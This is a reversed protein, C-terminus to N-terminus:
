KIATGRIDDLGAWDEDDSRRAELVTDIETSMSVVLDSNEAPQTEIEEGNPHGNGSGGTMNADSESRGVDRLVYSATQVTREGYPMKSFTSKFFSEPFADTLIRIYPVCSTLIAITQTCQGVLYWEWLALTIDSKGFNGSYGLQTATAAVDRLLGTLLIFKRNTHLRSFRIPSEVDGANFMRVTGRIHERHGLHLHLHGPWPQIAKVGKRRVITSLLCSNVAERPMSDSNLPCQGRLHGLPRGLGYNAAEGVLVGTVINFLQARPTLPFAPVWLRILKRTLRSHLYRGMCIRSGRLPQGFLAGRPCLGVCYAPVVLRHARCGAPEGHSRDANRRLLVLSTFHSVSKISYPRAPLGTTTGRPLQQQNKCVSGGALNSQKGAIAVPPKEACTAGNSKAGASVPM